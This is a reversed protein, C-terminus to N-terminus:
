KKRLQYLLAIESSSLARNYILVYDILGNWAAPAVANYGIYFANTDAMTLASAAGSTLLVGNKYIIGASGDYVATVHTWENLTLSNQASEIFTAGDLYLGLSNALTGTSLLWETEWERGAIGNYVEAGAARALVMAVVTFNDNGDIQYLSTSTNAFSLWDGTGDFDLASGFKDYVWHTDAVLIGTNNHGSLDFVKTGTVGLSMDWAGVLGKWLQPYESMGPWQAFGTHYSPKVGVSYM